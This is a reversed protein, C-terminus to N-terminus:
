EPERQLIGVAGHGRLRLRRVHGPPRRLIESFALAITGMMLIPNLLTWLFGLMSRQYRVRLEQVVMNQIVPWFQVLGRRDEALAALWRVPRRQPRASPFFDSHPVSARTRVNM